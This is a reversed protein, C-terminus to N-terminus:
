VSKMAAVGFPRPEATTKALSCSASAASVFGSTKLCSRFAKRSAAHAASGRQAPDGVALREARHTGPLSLGVVEGSGGVRAGREDVLVAGLAALLDSGGGGILQERARRRCTQPCNGPADM